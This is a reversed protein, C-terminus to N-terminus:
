NGLDKMEFEAVFEEKLIQKEHEDDGVIMGDVYILLLILKGELSHEIFLNHVGQSQWYGISIVVHTLRGFWARPSENLGYLAKKLRCVKNGEEISRFGLPIEV